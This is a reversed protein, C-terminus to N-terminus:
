PKFAKQKVILIQTYRTGDPTEDRGFQIAAGVAPAAYVGLVRGQQNTNPPIAPPGFAALLFSQVEPLRDGLTYIQIGDNDPKYRWEAQIRSFGNTTVLRAGYRVAHELTFSVLDGSATRYGPFPDNTKSCGIISTACLLATIAAKM